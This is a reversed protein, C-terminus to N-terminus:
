INRHYQEKNIKKCEYMRADAMTVIEKLGLSNKKGEIEVVGYSFSVPYPRTNTKVFDKLLDALRKEAARKEGESMVICFEDGGIRVFVDMSRFSKQVAEVFSHIYADGESHGFRDNVYKLGDLDMYCLVIDRKEELVKEMYEVFFLRNQIGTGPDCYAKSTLKDAAKKDDTIDVVIHAYANRGQWEILFTTIRYFGQEEDGMEWVKYQGSEQWNLIKNRFSLRHQCIHCFEPDIKKEDKRKNCYVIDRSNADVVLIWENRKTTLEVLLENYGEIVEARKQVRATEEKLLAEREKLQATMTNFAESFEGLYSVHQSYDGAAVKKAQWTLHNLNAHLNKLNACLFNDRAPFEGSLNGQSLDKTYAQMEEVAKQLYQLGLGLKRYPADLEEVHLPRIPSDYLISKLYEFLMECNDKEM